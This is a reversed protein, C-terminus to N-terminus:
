IVAVLLMALVMLGIGIKCATRSEDVLVAVAAAFVAAAAFTFDYNRGILWYALTMLLIYALAFPFFPNFEKREEDVRTQMKRVVYDDGIVAFTKLTTEYVLHLHSLEWGIMNENTEILVPEYKQSRSDYQKMVANLQDQTLVLGEAVNLGTEWSKEQQITYGSPSGMIPRNEAGVNLASLCLLAVLMTKYM